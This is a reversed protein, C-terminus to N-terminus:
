ILLQERHEEKSDQLNITKILHVRNWLHAKNILSSVEKFTQLDSVVAASIVVLKSFAERKPDMELLVVEEWMKIEERDALTEVISFM